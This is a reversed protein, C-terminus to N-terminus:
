FYSTKTFYRFISFFGLALFFYYNVYIVACIFM